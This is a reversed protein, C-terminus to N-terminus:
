CIYVYVYICIYLKIFHLVPIFLYVISKPTFIFIGMIWIGSSLLLFNLYCLFLFNFIGNCLFCSKSVKAFHMREWQENRRTNARFVKTHQNLIFGKCIYWELHVCFIFFFFLYLYIIFLFFIRFHPFCNLYFCVLSFFSVIENSLM